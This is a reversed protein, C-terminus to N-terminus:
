EKKDMKEMKEWLKPFQSKFIALDGTHHDAIRSILYIMRVFRVNTTNEEGVENKIWDNDKDVDFLEYIDYFDCLMQTLKKLDWFEIAKELKYELSNKDKM